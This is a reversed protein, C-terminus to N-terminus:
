KLNKFGLFCLELKANDDTIEESSEDTFVANETPYSTKIPNFFHQYKTQRYLFLWQLPRKYLLLNKM